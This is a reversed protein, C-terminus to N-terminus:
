RKILITIDRSDRIVLTDNIDRPNAAIMRDIIESVSNGPTNNVYERAIESVSANKLASTFHQEYENILYGSSYYHIKSLGNPRYMTKLVDLNAILNKILIEQDTNSSKQLLKLLDRRKKGINKHSYAKKDIVNKLWKEIYTQINRLKIRRTNLDNILFDLELIFYRISDKTSNKVIFNQNKKLKNIYNKAQAESYTQENLFQDIEVFLSAYYQNANSSYGTNIKEKIENKIKYIMVDFPVLDSIFLSIIAFILFIIILIKKILRYVLLEKKINPKQKNSSLKEKEKVLRTKNDIKTQNLKKYRKKGKFEKNIRYKIKKKSFLPILDIVSHAKSFRTKPKNRKKVIFLDLFVDFLKQFKEIFYLTYSSIKTLISGYLMEEPTVEVVDKKEAKEKQGHLVNNSNLGQELEQKKITKGRNSTELGEIAILNDRKEQNFAKNRSIAVLSKNTGEKRKINVNLSDAPMLKIKSADISFRIEPNTSGFVRHFGEFLDNFIVNEFYLIRMDCNDNEVIDVFGKSFFNKQEFNYIPYDFLNIPKQNTTFRQDIVISNPIQSAIQKQPNLFNSTLDNNLSDLLNLILEPEYIENRFILASAIYGDRNFRDLAYNYKIFFLYLNNKIFSKTFGLIESDEYLKIDELKLQLSDRLINFDLTGLCNDWSNRCLFEFGNRKGFVIVPIIKSM